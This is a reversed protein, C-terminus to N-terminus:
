DAIRRVLELGELERLAGSLLTDTETGADIDRVLADRLEAETSTRSQVFRSVLTSAVMDLCHTDGSRRDYAVMQGEWARVVVDAAAFQWRGTLELV